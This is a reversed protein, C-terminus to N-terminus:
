SASQPRAKASERRDGWAKVEVSDEEGGLPVDELTINPVADPMVRPVLM